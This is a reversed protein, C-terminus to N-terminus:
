SFNKLLESINRKEGSSQLLTEQKLQGIMKHFPQRDTQYLIGIKIKNDSWQSLKIGEIIDSVAAETKKLRSRFWEYTNLHNFTM